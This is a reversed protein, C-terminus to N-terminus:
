GALKAKLVRVNGLEDCVEVLSQYAKNAMIRKALFPGQGLGCEFLLYGNPRLYDPATTILKNFIDLGFPGADFAEQPEHRAIEDDMVKVKGSSIYPPASVIIDVAGKLGLESFPEFMDAHIFRARDHLGFHQTNILAADIAPKYIDSGFVRSNECIHAVALAVTGIGTCLDLLTILKDASFEHVITAIATKALLETEKRPIYLGENLIFELDMFNQRQTLHALPVGALRSEILEDLLSLQPPLLSPLQIKEASLPSVSKGSAKHWLACLTNRPTEESKDPLVKLHDALLQLFNSFINEQIL